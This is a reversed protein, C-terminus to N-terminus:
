SQAVIPCLLNGLNTLIVTELDSIICQPNNGEQQRAAKRRKLNPKFVISWVTFAHPYSCEQINWSLIVQSGQCTQFFISKTIIYEVPLPVILALLMTNIIQKRRKM